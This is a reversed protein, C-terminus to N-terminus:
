TKPKLYDEVPGATSDGLWNNTMAQKWDRIPRGLANCWDRKSYYDFFKKPDVEYEKEKIYAKVQDLTPPVFRRSSQRKQPESKQWIIHYMVGGEATGGEFMQMIVWGENTHPESHLALTERSLLWTTSKYKM